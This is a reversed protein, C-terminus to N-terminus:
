NAPCEQDLTEQLDTAASGVAALAGAIETASAALDDPNVDQLSSQLEDFTARVDDVAPQLVDSVAGAATELEAKSDAVASQVADLGDQAPEVNSLAVLSAQLQALEECGEALASSSSTTTPTTSDAEPDDSSCGAVLLLAVVATLAPVAVPPFPRRM